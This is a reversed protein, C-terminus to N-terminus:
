IKNYTFSIDKNLIPIIQAIDDITENAYKKLEDTREGNGSYAVTYAGYNNGAHIDMLSDGVMVCDKQWHNNNILNIIGQPDPKSITVDDLGCVDDVYNNLEFDELMKKIMQNTRTSFIAVHYGEDHLTKLTSTVNPNVKNVVPAAKEQAEHYVNTLEEIDHDPFYKAFIDRIAPGLVEDKKGDDFDAINGYKEFLAEYGAWISEHTDILTGDMDFILSPKEKKIFKQLFGLYGLIGIIVFILSTLQAMKISGLYLSDTRHGEIFFRVVGYWMLYAYTLDGRKNQRKKLVFHIILWGILCSVSEYFFMPEFYHGNIHMGNKIFSLIGDYYSEDVEFGYCEKNIFNGWRGIAQGLLVNPLIIDVFKMFSYHHKKTYFYVFIAGAVIGGQIALGGNWIKIIEIPNSLYYSFNFFICFWLRAGIVGFWLTYVLLSDFYDLDIYKARKADNKSVLYTLVFGLMILVAYWRINLVFNGIQLILFSENQFFSIM